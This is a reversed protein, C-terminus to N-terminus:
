SVIFLTLLRHDRAPSSVGDALRAVHDLLNRLRGGQSGALLPFIWFLVAGCLLQLHLAMGRGADVDLRDVMLDVAIVVAVFLLGIALLHRIAAKLPADKNM